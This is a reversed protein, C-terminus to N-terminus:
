ILRQVVMGGNQFRGFDALTVQNNFIIISLRVNAVMCRSFQMLCKTQEFSKMKGGNKATNLVAVFIQCQWVGGM